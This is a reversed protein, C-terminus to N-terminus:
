KGVDAFGRNSKFLSEWVTRGHRRFSELRRAVFYQNFVSDLVPRSM